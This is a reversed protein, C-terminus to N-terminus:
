RPSGTRTPFPNRCISPEQGCRGCVHDATILSPLLAIRRQIRRKFAPVKQIRAYGRCMAYTAEKILDYEKQIKELVQLAAPLNDPTRKRKKEKEVVDNAEKLRLKSLAVLATMKAQLRKGDGKPRQSQLTQFITKL